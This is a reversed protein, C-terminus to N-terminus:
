TTVGIKFRVGNKEITASINGPLPFHKGTAQALFAKDLAFLTSARPQGQHLQRIAQAYARLRLAKPHALLESRPLFPTSPPFAALEKNWYDTDLQALRWLSRLSDAFAPNEAYFVPLVEHRLRNRRFTTDNNSADEVWSVHQAQLFAILASKEQLLLPRVLHRAPDLAPMGGLKPWSSGRALRLLIDEGLDGVHHGTAIWHAKHSQRAQELFAYRAHRAAEELGQKSAEALAQINLRTVTCPVHLSQCLAAVHAAEAPSEPRLAHDLHAAALELHCHSQLHRLILLLATSDAGGSLAVLIRQGNLHLGLEQEVFHAINLCFRADSRSLSQLSYPSPM